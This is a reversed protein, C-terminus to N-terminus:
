VIDVTGHGFAVLPTLPPLLDTAWVGPVNYVVKCVHFGYLITKPIVFM